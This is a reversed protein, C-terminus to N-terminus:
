PCPTQCSTTKTRQPYITMMMMTTTMTETKRSRKCAAPLVLVLVLVELNEKQEETTTAPLESPPGTIFAGRKRPRAGLYAQKPASPARTHTPSGRKRRADVTMSPPAGCSRRWCPPRPPAQRHSKSVTACARLAEHANERPSVGFWGEEEDPYRKRLTRDLAEYFTELEQASLSQSPGLTVLCQRQILARVGHYVADREWLRCYVELLRDFYLPDTDVEERFEAEVAATAARLAEAESDANDAVEQGLPPPM